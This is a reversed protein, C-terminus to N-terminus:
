RVTLKVSLEFYHKKVGRTCLIVGTSCLDTLLFLDMALPAVFRACEMSISSTFSSAEATTRGCPVICARRELTVVATSVNGFTSLSSACKTETALTIQKSFLQKSTNSLLFTTSKSPHILASHQPQYPFHSQSIRIPYSIKYPMM